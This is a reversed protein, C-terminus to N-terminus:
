DDHLQRVKPCGEADAAGISVNVQMENACSHMKM